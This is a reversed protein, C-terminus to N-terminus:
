ETQSFYSGSWPERAYESPSYNREEHRREITKQKPLRAERLREHTASLTQAPDPGPADSNNKSPTVGSVQPLAKVVPRAPKEAWVTNEPVAFFPHSPPENVRRAPSPGMLSNLLVLFVSLAALMSILYGFIAGTMNVVKCVRLSGFDGIANKSV